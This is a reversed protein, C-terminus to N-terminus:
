RRPRHCEISALSKIDLKPLDGELRPCLLSNPEVLNVFKQMDAIM